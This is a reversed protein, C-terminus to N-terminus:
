KRSWDVFAVGVHLLLTLRAATAPSNQVQIQLRGLRAHVDAGLWLPMSGFREAIRLGLDVSPAATSQTSAGEPYAILWEAGVRALGGFRADPNLPAGIGLGVQVDMFLLTRGPARAFRFAERGQLWVPGMVVGFDFAPGLAVGVKSSPAEGSASIAVGGGRADAARTAVPDAPVGAPAATARPSPSPSPARPPEAAGAPEAVSGDPTEGSRDGEQTAPAGHALREQFRAFFAEELATGADVDLAEGRWEIWARAETCVIAPRTGSERAARLLLEIRAELEQFASSSLRPCRNEVRVGAADALSPVLFWLAM